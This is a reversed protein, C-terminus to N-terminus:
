FKSYVRLHGVWIEEGDAGGTLAVGAVINGSASKKYKMLHEAGTDMAEASVKDGLAVTGSAKARVLANFQTQVTVTQGAEKCGVSLIGFPVDGVASVPEVEGTNTDLKVVTFSPMPVKASFGENIAWSEEKRCVRKTTGGLTDM